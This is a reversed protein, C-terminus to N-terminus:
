GSRFRNSAIQAHEAESFFFSEDCRTMYMGIEYGDGILHETPLGAALSLLISPVDAGAAVALPIGGGLRGNIEIFYPQEERYICQVTIPGVAPLEQAIKQCGKLIEDDRITVGKIVEGDRVAIRRRSVTLITSGTFDCIVDSTVEQGPLFEQVMPQPVFPILARLHDGSEVKFTNKAASGHRPKLFVPYSLEDFCVDAERWSRPTQLGIRNFFQYAEWKDHCVKAADQAVVAVRAGTAELRPKASALVPIDLDNLPLILDIQEVECIREVIDLYDAASVRPVTYPRDVTQLAPALADMDTAVLKGGLELREFALYFLRTLEVRRGVSTLLVNPM